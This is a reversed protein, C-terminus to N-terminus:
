QLGSGPYATGRWSRPSPGSTRPCAPSLPRATPAAHGSADRRLSPTSPAPRIHDVALRAEVGPPAGDRATLGATVDSGATEMLATRGTGSRVGMVTVDSGATEM